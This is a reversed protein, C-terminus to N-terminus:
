YTANPQRRRTRTVDRHGAGLPRASRRAPCRHARRHAADLNNVPSAPVEAARTRAMWNAVTRQAEKVTEAKPPMVADAGGALAKTMVRENSGPAFLAVRAPQM